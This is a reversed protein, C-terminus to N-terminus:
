KSIEQYRYGADGVDATWCRLALKKKGVIIPFVCCYGGSYLKFGFKNKQPKGSKFDSDLVFKDLNRVATVYDGAYPWM